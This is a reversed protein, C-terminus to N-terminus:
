QEHYTQPIDDQNPNPAVAHVVPCTRCVRRHGAGVYAVLKSTCKNSRRHTHTRTNHTETDGHRWTETDRRSQTETDRHRQTETDRHRQTEQRQPETATDTDRDTDADSNARAHLVTEQERKWIERHTIAGAM